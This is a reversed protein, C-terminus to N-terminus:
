QKKLYYIHRKNNSFKIGLIIKLREKSIFDVWASIIYKDGKNPTIGKHPHTWFSPFILCIRQVSKVRM